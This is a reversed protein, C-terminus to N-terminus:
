IKTVATLRTTEFRWVLGDEPDDIEATFQFGCKALVRKSANSAPLTHARVLKVQDLSFAYAVLARAAETAYGKGAQDPAVGYAIEVMGSPDPPGKFGCQGVTIGTDPDVISFGHVWPDPATSARLRALWDASLQAKDAADMTEIGARVEEPTKLVLKLRPAQLTAANM